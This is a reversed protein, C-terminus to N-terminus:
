KLFPPETGAKLDIFSVRTSRERGSRRHTYSEFMDTSVSPKETRCNRKGGAERIRPRRQHRGKRYRENKRQERKRRFKERMRKMEETYMKEPLLELLKLSEQQEQIYLGQM